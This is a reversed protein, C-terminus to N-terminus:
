RLSGRVYDVKPARFGMAAWALLLRWMFRPSHTAFAPVGEDNEIPRRLDRTMTRLEPVAKDAPQFRDSYVSLWHGKTFELFMPTNCCGAVVRRTSSDPKLRYEALNEAGRLCRVRDKRILMFATGDNRGLVPPAGELSQLHAGATQCSQCHCIAALIPQGAVELAAQGCQCAAIRTMM